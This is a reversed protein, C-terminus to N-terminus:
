RILCQGANPLPLGSLRQDWFVRRDLFEMVYFTSGIIADDECLAYVRPVPVATAGGAPLRGDGITM